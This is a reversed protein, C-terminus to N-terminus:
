AAASGANAENAAIAEVPRDEQNQYRGAYVALEQVKHFLVQAIGSGASIHLVDNGHYVLELTLFGRWGPEIVTNLVSLGKRAWSSKDHVVGLLNPPMDFEEIASAIVFRGPQILAMEEGEPDRGVRTVTRKGYLDRGFTIDQKIRIDYGAETLGHSVGHAYRKELLMGRIPASRYLQRGNNVM